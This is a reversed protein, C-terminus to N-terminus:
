ILLFFNFNVVLVAEYLSSYVHFLDMNQMIFKMYVKISRSTCCATCIVDYFTSFKFLNKKVFTGFKCNLSSFGQECKHFIGKTLALCLGKFRQHFDEGLEKFHHHFFKDLKGM